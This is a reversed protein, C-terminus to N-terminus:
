QGPLRRAVQWAALRRGSGGRLRPRLRALGIRSTVFHRRQCTRCGSGSCDPLETVSGTNSDMDRCRATRRLHPQTCCSGSLPREVPRDLRCRCLAQPTHSRPPRRAHFVHGGVDYEYIADIGAAKDAQFRATLALPNWQASWHDNPRRRGLVTVGWRAM